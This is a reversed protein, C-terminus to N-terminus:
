NDNLISQYIAETEPSPAIGFNASLNKRCQEFISIAETKRGLKKLCVMYRQYFEEFPNELNLGQQYWKAASEFDGSSELEDCLHGMARLFINDWRDRQSAMLPSGEDGALFPGKYYNMAKEFFVMAQKSNGQASAEEAHSLLREFEWCDVWCNGTDLNLKGDQVQLIEESGL